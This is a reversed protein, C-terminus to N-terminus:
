AVRLLEAIRDLVLSITFPKRIFEDAGADLLEQTEDPDAVGSCAIIKIHEYNSNAGIVSGHDLYISREKDGDIVVLQGSWNGQGAVGILDWLVGAKNIEGSLWFERKQGRRETSRM